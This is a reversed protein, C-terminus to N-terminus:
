VYSRRDLDLIPPYDNDDLLDLFDDLGGAKILAYEDDSILNVTLIDVREGDIVLSAAIREDPKIIPTLFLFTRFDSGQLPPDPMPIRHGFGLWTSDLFPYNALWRMTDVIDSTPERVYWMLEARPTAGDGLSAVPLTMRRDSMGNTLLVYGIDEPGCAGFDRGFALIEVGDPGTGPFVLDPEDLEVEYAARRYTHPTDPSAPKEGLVLQKLKSFM